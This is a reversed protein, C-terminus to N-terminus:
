WLAAFFHLQRARSGTCAVLLQPPMRAAIGCPDYYRSGLVRFGNNDIPNPWKSKPVGPPPHFIFYLRRFLGRFLIPIFMSLDFFSSLSCVPCPCSCLLFGFLLAPSLLGHDICIHKYVVCPMPDSATREGALRYAINWQCAAASGFDFGVLNHNVYVMWLSGWFTHLSISSSPFSVCCCMEFDVCFIAYVLFVTVPFVFVM